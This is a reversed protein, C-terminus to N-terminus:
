MESISTRSAYSVVNLTLVLTNKLRELRAHLAIFKPQVLPWKLRRLANVVSKRDDEDGDTDVYKNLERQIEKFVDDCGTVADRATKIIHENDNRLNGANTSAQEGLLTGFRTILSSTISLDRAIDKIHRDANIASETFQYLTTSLKIGASAVGIIASALSFADAM